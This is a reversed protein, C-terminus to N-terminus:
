EDIDARIKRREVYWAAFLVFVAASIGVAYYWRPIPQEKNTAYQSVDVSLAFSGDPNYIEISKANPFYPFYQLFKINDPLKQEIPIQKVPLGQEDFVDGHFLFQPLGFSGEWLTHGRFSLIQVGHAGERLPPIPAQKQLTVGTTELVGNTSLM